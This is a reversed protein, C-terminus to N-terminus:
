VEVMEESEPVDADPSENRLSLQALYIGLEYLLCMPVWMFMMTLADPTPTVVAAFVAMIFWSIRRKRRFVDVGFIRFKALFLMVLPTQFSVGFILPLLLAFSLWENLRLDPELGLWENFELLIHIAQPIVIIECLAVGALFLVLSFPLYLNVYKKEHPYLGAAIFTWLQYFIWPSGIIIGCFICVKFYVMFAETINMTALLPPKTVLRGAESTKIAWDLPQVRIPLIMREEGGPIDKLGLNEALEKRNLEIKVEEWTNAKTVADDDRAELSAEITKVRKKYFLGLEKEVPAAIFRLVPKGIFLSLVLGIGFGILARWLHTRLDEIHDGFSMRTDAFMDDPDPRNDMYNM